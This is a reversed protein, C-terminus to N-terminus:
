KREELLYNLVILLIQNLIQLEQFLRFMKPILFLLPPNEILKDEVGKEFIELQLKGDTMESKDFNEIELRKALDELFSRDSLKDEEVELYKAISGVLSLREFGKTIDINNEGIWPFDSYFCERQM